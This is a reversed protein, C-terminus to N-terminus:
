FYMKQNFNRQEQSRYDELEQRKQRFDVQVQEVVEQFPQTLGYPTGEEVERYFTYVYDVLQETKQHLQNQANDLAEEAQNLQRMTADYEEEIRWRTQNDM